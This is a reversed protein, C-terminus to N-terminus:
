GEKKDPGETLIKCSAITKADVQVIGSKVACREPITNISVCLTQYLILQCRCGDEWETIDDIKLKM